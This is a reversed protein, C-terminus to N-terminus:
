LPMEVLHMRAHAEAEYFLKGKDVFGQALFWWLPGNPFVVDESAIALLNKFARARLHEILAELPYSKYDKNEDSLFVCTLFAVSEAKGPIPYPILDSPLFEAGGVCKGKYFHLFGLHESKARALMMTVWDRKGSCLHKEDTGFCPECSQEVTEATIPVLKGKVINTSQNVIYPKRKIEM